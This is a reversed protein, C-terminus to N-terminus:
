PPTSALPSPQLSSLLGFHVLDTSSYVIDAATVKKMKNRRRRKRKSAQRKTHANAQLPAASASSPSLPYYHKLTAQKSHHM